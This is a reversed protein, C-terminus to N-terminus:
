DTFQQRLIEIKALRDIFLAVLKPDFQKGPQEQLLAVSDAVPWSDKYPRTSTLADFV